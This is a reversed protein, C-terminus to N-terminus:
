PAPLPPVGKPRIVEPLFAGNNIGVEGAMLTNLLKNMRELLAKNKERDMALNDMEDPDEKLDFLQVDNNAFLDNLTTPTNFHDPAYYRAFKYRGDFTFALFGRKHLHPKLDALNIKSKAVVGSGGTVCTTCFGADVTLPGVYNFLAGERVATPNERSEPALAPTIDHGPLGKALEKRQAESAGGLAILTPLLDLHSTVV